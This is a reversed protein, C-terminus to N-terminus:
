IIIILLKNMSCNLELRQTWSFGMSSKQPVQVAFNLDQDINKYFKTVKRENSTCESRHFYFDSPFSFSLLKQSQCMKSLIKFLFIHYCFSDSCIPVFGHSRLSKSPVVHWPSTLLNTVDVFQRHWVSFDLKLM